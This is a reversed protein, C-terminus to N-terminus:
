QERVWRLTTRQGDLHTARVLYTGPVAPAPITQRSGDHLALTRGTTDFIELRRLPAPSNVQIVDHTGPNPFLNFRDDPSGDDVGTTFGCIPLVEHVQLTTAPGETLNFSLLIWGVEDDRRYAVYLSDVVSPGLPVFSGHLGLLMGNAPLWDFDGACDLPAGFAHFKPVPAFGAADACMEVDDDLWRFSAYNAGDVEPMGRVLIVWADMFDDCDLELSASDQTFATNLVLDVNAQLAVGGPPVEGANLQANGTSHIFLAVLLPIWTRM